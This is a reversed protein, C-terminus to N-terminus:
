RIEAGHSTVAKEVQQVINDIEQKELTKTVDSMVYRFTLARHAGWEEKEFYDVLDVQTIRADVDNIINKIQDATVKIPVLMSVDYTVAQYKSWPKCAIDKKDIHSIYNADLEFIFAQGQLVPRIFTQSVMGATGIMNDDVYLQATKHMDYWPAIPTVPKKWTVKIDLLDWLSEMDAKVQYFDISKQDFIIGALSTQEETDIPWINNWEFFRIHDKNASHLSVNKILHPVLSTVLRTWNESVPNKVRIAHEPNCSLKQLFSEDFFLYDRVEHMHYAFALHKKINSVVHVVHTDFPLAPKQLPQYSINEYGYLRVIEELIDEKIAIDKTMRNTPITVTYVLDQTDSSTTVQFGLKTLTNIIFDSAIEVGLRDTVFSHAITCTVPTINKGVSVISEQVNQVIGAHLALYLFRQLVLVNQMPDLHKEFRTSAETRLKFHQATKRIMTPNFGAAELFIAQTKNTYCSNSGGMIGALAVPHTDNAVVLDHLRLSLSQGDLLTVQEGKHANRIHVQQKDFAQADFVHMPHGLDFMVYNTLDVMMDIPKVGVRALRIATCIDVDKHEITDCYLGAFRSCGQTDELQIAFSNKDSKHVTTKSHIVSQQAVFTDLPRLPVDLFTAIERAIGYHGWLDPRHNISKNDVDLVYDSAEINNRWQGDLDQETAHVAPFLGEKDSSMDALSVWRVVDKDKKILYYKSTILDSRKPLIFETNLEKCFAVVDQKSMKVVQVVYMAASDISVQEFYEIEATRTNFLHVIDSVDVKSLSYDIYDFVWALSIKM